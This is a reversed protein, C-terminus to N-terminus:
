KKSDAIIKAVGLLFTAVVGLAIIGGTIIKSKDKSKRNEDNSREAVKIIQNLQEYIKLREQETIDNRKLAENFVSIANNCLNILQEHSKSVGEDNRKILDVLEVGVKLFLAFNNNYLDNIQNSVYNQDNSQYLDKAITIVEEQSTTDPLFDKNEMNSESLLEVIQTKAELEKVFNNINKYNYLHMMQYRGYSLKFENPLEIDEMLINIFPIDNEDAFAVENSCHKSKLSNESIMYIFLSANSIAEAISKRWDDGYHIGEDFWVNYQKNQLAKIFPHVRDNDKHSYSIFIYKGNGQYSKITKM